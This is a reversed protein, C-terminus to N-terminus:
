RGHSGPKAARHTLKRTPLTPLAASGVSVNDRTRSSMSALRKTCLGLLWHCYIGALRRGRGEEREWVRTGETGRWAWPRQVQKGESQFMRRESEKRALQQEDEPRLEYIEEESLFVHTGSGRPAKRNGYKAM